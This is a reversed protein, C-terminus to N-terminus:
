GGDDVGEGTASLCGLGDQRAIGCLPFWERPQAREHNWGRSVVLNMGSALLRRGLSAECTRGGVTSFRAASKLLYSPRKREPGNAQRFCAFLAVIRQRSFGREILWSM